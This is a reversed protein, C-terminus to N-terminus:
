PREEVPLERAPETYGCEMVADEARRAIHTETPAELPDGIDPTGFEHIEFDQYDRIMTGTEGITIACGAYRLWARGDHEAPEGYGQVRSVHDIVLRNLRDVSDLSEGVEEDVIHGTVFMREWALLQQLRVIRLDPVFPEGPPLTQHPVTNHVLLFVERFPSKSLAQRVGPSLFDGTWFRECDFQPHFWDLIILNMHSLDELEYARETKGRIVEALRAQFAHADPTQMLIGPVDTHKLAGSADRVEFRVAKLEKKDKKHLHLGGGWLQHMYGHVLNLRAHSETPFLQTVEVGFPRSKRNRVLAFDPREREEVSSYQSTDYVRELIIREQARKREQPNM